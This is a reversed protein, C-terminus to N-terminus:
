FTIDDFFPLLIACAVRPAHHITNALDFNYVCAAFVDHIEYTIAHTRMTAAKGCQKKM